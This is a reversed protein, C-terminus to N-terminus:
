TRCNTGIFMYIHGGFGDYGVLVVHKAGVPSNIEQASAALAFFLTLVLGVALSFLRRTMM